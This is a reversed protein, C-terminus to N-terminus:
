VFPSHNSKMRVTTRHNTRGNGQGRRTVAPRRCNYRNQRQNHNRKIRRDCLQTVSYITRRMQGTRRLYLLVNALGLLLVTGFLAGVIVFHVAMPSLSFGTATTPSGSGGVVLEHVSSTLNTTSNHPDPIGTETSTVGAVSDSFTTVIHQQHDHDVTRPLHTWSSSLYRSATSLMPSMKANSPSIYSPEENASSLMERVHFSMEEATSSMEEATPRTLLQVSSIRDATSMEEGSSIEATSLMDRAGPSM